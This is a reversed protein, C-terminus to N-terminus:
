RTRAHKYLMVLRHTYHSRYSVTEHERVRGLWEEVQQLAFWPPLPVERVVVFEVVGDRLANFRADPHAGERTLSLQELMAAHLDWATGWYVAKTDKRRLM